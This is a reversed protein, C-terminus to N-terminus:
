FELRTWPLFNDLGLPGPVGSRWWYALMWIGTDQYDSNLIIAVARSLLPKGPCKGWKLDRKGIKPGSSISALVISVLPRDCGQTLRYM